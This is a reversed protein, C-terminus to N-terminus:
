GSVTAPRSPTASAVGERGAASWLAEAIRAYVHRYVDEGRDLPDAIATPGSDHLAGLAMVRDRAAPFRRLLGRRNADDFVLVLDAQAVLEPTLRVSRHDDLDVGFENAVRRAVLPSPRDDFPLLGASRVRVADPLLRQAYRAAFPSRCLNGRCVFLVSGAQGLARRARRRRRAAVAPLLDVKARTASTTSSLARSGLLRLEAWAPARDDSVFTDSRERGRAVNAAEGAVALLSRTSLAPDDRDARANLWMWKLDSRLNRAHVGVRYTGCAPRRDHLLLEWLAVPFDAGAALALPLSGWFRANIEILVWRGSSPDHKFEVMAVGTHGLDEILRAAAAEFEPHVRVSRRYSSWGGGPPEHVREHEFRMVIEGRHALLEYGHGVGNVNEQILVDGRALLRTAAARAEERTWARRVYGREHLDQELYSAQPKIIIPYAFAELAGDLQDLERVVVGHPVPVGLSAALEHTKIKDFAIQFTRENPLALRALRGFRERDRQLPIIAPDNTPVVLDFRERGLLETLERRWGQGCHSPWAVDHRRAIYRSRAAPADPPCWAIHVELGHRGLSRVVSLFSRTDQGLVLVKGRAGM